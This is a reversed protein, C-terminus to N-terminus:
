AAISASCHLDIRYIVRFELGVATNHGTQLGGLGLNQGRQSGGRQGGCRIIDWLVLAQLLQGGGHLHRLMQEAAHGALQAPAVAVVVREVTQFIVAVAFEVEAGLIEDQQQGPHLINLVALKVGGLDFGEAGRGARQDLDVGRCQVVRGAM